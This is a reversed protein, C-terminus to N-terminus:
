KITGKCFFSFHLYLFGCVNDTARGHCVAGFVLAGFVGEDASAVYAFRAEYVHEAAVFSQGLGGGCRALGQEDVVEEDVVLPVQYVQGAIAIGFARLGHLLFEVLHYAAIDQLSRLESAHEYENVYSM